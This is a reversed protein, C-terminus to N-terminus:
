VRLTIVPTTQFGGDLVDNARELEGSLATIDYLVNRAAKLTDHSYAFPLELKRNAFDVLTRTLNAALYQHCEDTVPVGDLTIREHEAASYTPFDTGNRTVLLSKEFALQAGDDHTFTLTATVVGNEVRMPFDVSIADMHLGHSFRMIASHIIFCSQVAPTDAWNNLIDGLREAAYLKGIAKRIVDQDIMREHHNIISRAKEAQRTLRALLTFVTNAKSPVAYQM